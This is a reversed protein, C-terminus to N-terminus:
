NYKTRELSYSSMASDYSLSPVINQLFRLSDFWERELGQRELVGFIERGPIRSREVSAPRWDDGSESEREVDVVVVVVDVALGVVPPRVSEATEARM